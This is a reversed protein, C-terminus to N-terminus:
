AVIEDSKRSQRIFESIEDVKYVYRVSNNDIKEMRRALLLVPQAPQCFCM